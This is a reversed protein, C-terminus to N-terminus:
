SLMLDKYQVITEIVNQTFEKIETNPHFFLNELKHKTYSDIEYVDENEDNEEKETFQKIRQSSFFVEDKPNM